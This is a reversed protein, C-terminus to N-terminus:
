SEFYKDIWRKTYSDRRENMLKLVKKKDDDTLSIIAGNQDNRVVIVDGVIFDDPHYLLSANLNFDLGILKGEDNCIMDIDDTVSVFEILGGVYGQLNELTDEFEINEIIGDTRILLGKIM